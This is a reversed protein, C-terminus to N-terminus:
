KTEMENIEFEEIYRCWFPHLSFPFFFLIENPFLDESKYVIGGDLIM